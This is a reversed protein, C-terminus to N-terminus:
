PSSFSVIKKWKSELFELGCDNAKKMMWDFSIYSLSDKPYGGGINSHVGAFLVQEVSGDFGSEDWIRPHFTLREDDISMAHYANEISPNLEDKHPIRWFTAIAYIADRM